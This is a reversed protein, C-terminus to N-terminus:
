LIKKNPNFNVKITSTKMYNEINDCCNNEKIKDVPENVEDLTKYLEDFSM